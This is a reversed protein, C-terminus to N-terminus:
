DSGTGGQNVFAIPTVKYNLASTTGCTVDLTVGTIRAAMGSALFVAANAIDDMGPLAKLMTDNRLKDIFEAAREGGQEVAERFVRSDPSGASRINVVRVGYPGLESALDCSLSEIACCAPGFGGVNPYGIGGPTATLSLIAGSGQTKMRRGAATATIFHSQMAIRVPRLFDELEMDVLAVDQTDELGIANFSIDLAGHRRAIGDVYADVANRDLADVQAAEADAGAARIGAAVGEVSELNRGSLMLRAGEHAFARAVAGGLSGGAGYIAVTKNQLMM